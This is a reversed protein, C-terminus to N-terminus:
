QTQSEFVVVEKGQIQDEILREFGWWVMGASQASLIWEVEEKDKGTLANKAGEDAIEELLKEAKWDIIQQFVGGGGVDEFVKIIDTTLRERITTHLTALLHRTEGTKADTLALGNNHIVHTGIPYHEDLYHQLFDELEPSDLGPYDPHNMIKGLYSDKDRQGDGDKDPYDSTDTSLIWVSQGEYKQALDLAKNRAQEIPENGATEGNSYEAFVPVGKFSCLYIKQGSKLQGDGNYIYKDMYAHLSLPAQNFNEYTEGLQTSKDEPFVLGKMLHIAMLAKRVSGTAIILEQPPAGQWFDIDEVGTFFTPKKESNDEQHPTDQLIFRDVPGRAFIHRELPNSADIHAPM